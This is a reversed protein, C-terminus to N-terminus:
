RWGFINAYLTFESIIDPGLSDETRITVRHREGRSRVAHKLNQISTGGVPHPITMIGITDTGGSAEITITDRSEIDFGGEVVVTYTITAGADLIPKIYNVQKIRVDKKPEAFNLWVSQFETTYIEGDDSYVDDVDCTFVGGAPGVAILDGNRRVFFENQRAFKGDFLSWSGSSVRLNRAPINTLQQTGLFATYNFVYMESGIKSILWSRRPYHTLIIDDEPSDKILDRLTTKIAESLNERNLSSADAGFEVSQIGDNSVFVLDNGISIMGESSVVGQPFLGIISFDTSDAAADAIPNTGDFFLLNNQGAIALLRQFSTLSKITDGHPQQSGIQFANSDLTGADTTLDEPNDPGSIQARTEDRSDVYYFRGFHVHGESTIPMASKLFVLSDGATQSAVSTCTLATAVASVKAVAARTTNRIFDGIRIDTTSFNVGTVGVTVTNTDEGATAVNDPVDLDASVPIINLEVSDIITYRDAAESNGVAQGLGTAASGITTHSLAATTIATIVGFASKTRNNIIDGIAVDTQTIWDTVDDDDAGAASVAGALTGRIIVAELEPFNIGDETYFNRDVGNFFILKKGMQKSKIRASGDLGSHVEVWTASDLRYIRGGGSSFLTATGDSQILEHCGTMSPTNPVVNGLREIGQRKEAGGASNIFRNRFKLAYTVPAESEVFSTALGFRPIQYTAEKIPM